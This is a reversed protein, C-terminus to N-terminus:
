RRQSTRPQRPQLLQDADVLLPEARAVDALDRERLGPDLRLAEAALYQAGLGVDLRGIEREREVQAVRGPRRAHLDGGRAVELDFRAGEVDLREHRLGPAAAGIQERPAAGDLARVRADIQGLGVAPDVHREVHAPLM